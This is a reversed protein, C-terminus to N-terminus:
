RAVRYDSLTAFDLRASQTAPRKAQECVEDAFLSKWLDLAKEHRGRGEKYGRSQAM